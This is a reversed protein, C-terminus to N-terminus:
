ARMKGHRQLAHVELAATRDGQKLRDLAPHASLDDPVDQTPNMM